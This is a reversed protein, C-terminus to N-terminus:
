GCDLSDVRVHARVNEQRRLDVGSDAKPSPHHSFRTRPKFKSGIHRVSGSLWGDLRERQSAM